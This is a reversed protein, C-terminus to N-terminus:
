WSSLPTTGPLGAAYPRKCGAKWQHQRGFRGDPRGREASPDRRLAGIPFVVFAATSPPGLDLPTAARLNNVNVVHDINMNGRIRLWGLNEVVGRRHGITSVLMTTHSEGCWPPFPLYRLPVM